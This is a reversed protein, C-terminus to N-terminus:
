GDKGERAALEQQVASRILAALDDATRPLAPAAQRRHPPAVWETLDHEAARVAEPCGLAFFDAPSVKLRRALALVHRVRLELTGNLLRELNGHGIGLVEEAERGSLRSGAVAERLLARLSDLDQDSM